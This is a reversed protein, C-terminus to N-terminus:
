LVHDRRRICGNRECGTIRVDLNGGASCNGRSLQRYVNRKERSGVIGLLRQNEIEACDFPVVAIAYLKAGAGPDATGKRSLTTPPYVVVASREVGPGPSVERHNALTPEVPTPDLVKWTLQLLEGAM